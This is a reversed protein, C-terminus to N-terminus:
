LEVEVSIDRTQSDTRLNRELLMKYEYDDTAVRRVSIFVMWGGLTPSATRVDYCSGEETRDVFNYIRSERALATKVDRVRRVATEFTPERRTVRAVVQTVLGVDHFPQLYKFLPKSHNDFKVDMFSFPGVKKAFQYRGIEDLVSNTVGGGTLEVMALLPNTPRPDGLIHVIRVSSNSSVLVDLDETTASLFLPIASLFFLVSWNEIVM